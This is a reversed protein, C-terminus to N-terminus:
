KHLWSPIVWRALQLGSVKLCSATFPEMVKRFDRTLESIYGGVSNRHIVFSPPARKLEEPEEETNAQINNRANRGQLCASPDRHVSLCVATV